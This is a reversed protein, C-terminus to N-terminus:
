SISLLEKLKLAMMCLGSVLARALRTFLSGARRLEVVVTVFLGSYLNDVERCDVDDPM